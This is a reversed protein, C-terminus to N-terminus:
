DTHKFLFSRLIFFFFSVTVTMSTNKMSILEPLSSMHLTLTNITGRNAQTLDQSHGAQLAKRVKM